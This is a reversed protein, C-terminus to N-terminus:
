IVELQSRYFTRAHRVEGREKDLDWMVVQYAPDGVRDEAEYRDGLCATRGNWADDELRIRVPMGPTLLQQRVAVDHPGEYQSKAADWAAEPDTETPLLHDILSQIQDELLRLSSRDDLVAATHTALQQLLDALAQQTDDTQRLLGLLDQMVERVQERSRYGPAMVDYEGTTPNNGFLVIRPYKRLIAIGAMVHGVPRKKPSRRAKGNQKSM